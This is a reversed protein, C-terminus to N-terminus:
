SARPVHAALIEAVRERYMAPIPYSITLSQGKTSIDMELQQEGGEPSRDWRYSRIEGWKLLGDYCIGQDTFRLHTRKKFVVVVALVGGSALAAMVLGESRRWLW